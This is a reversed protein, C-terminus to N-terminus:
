KDEREEPVLHDIKFGIGLLHALEDIKSTVSGDGDVQYILDAKKQSYAQAKLWEWAEEPTVHLCIFSQM